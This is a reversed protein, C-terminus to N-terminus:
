LSCPESDSSSGLRQRGPRTERKKEREDARPEQAQTRPGVKKDALNMEFTQLVVDTRCATQCLTINKKNFIAHMLAGPLGVCARHALHRQQNLKKFVQEHIHSVKKTNNDFTLIIQKLM